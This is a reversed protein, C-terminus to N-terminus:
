ARGRRRLRPRARRPGQGPRHRAAAVGGADLVERVRRPLRGARRSSTASRAASSRSWGRLRAPRAARPARHLRRRRRPGAAGPYDAAIAAAAERLASESVDLPVFQRLTGHPACRTSCCAPRRRPAPASSSWRTRAPARPSRARRASCSRASPEPRTTSRCGPSTRSCSAAAPTTSGSPRCGSRARRDARDRADRRLAERRPRTASSSSMTWSSKTM